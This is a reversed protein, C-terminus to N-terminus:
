TKPKTYGRCCYDDMHEVGDVVRSTGGRERSTFGSFYMM